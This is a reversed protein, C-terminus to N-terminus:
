QGWANGTASSQAQATNQAQATQNQPQTGKYSSAPFYGKVEVPFDPNNGHVVRIVVPNGYLVETQSITKDSGFMAKVFNKFIGRCKKSMEADQHKVYFRDFLRRDTQNGDIIKWQVKLVTCHHGKSTVAPEIKDEVLECLYDGPPVPTNGGFEEYEETNIAEPLMSM